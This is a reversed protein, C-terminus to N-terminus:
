NGGAKEKHENVLRKFRDMAEVYYKKSWAWKGFSEDSPYAVYPDINKGQFTGGKREIHKFVEYHSIKYENENDRVRYVYAVGPEEAIREYVFCSVKGKGHIIPELQRIQEM